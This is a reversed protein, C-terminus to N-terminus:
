DGLPLQTKALIAMHDDVREHHRTDIISRRGTRACTALTALCWRFIQFSSSSEHISSFRYQKQIYVFHYVSEQAGNLYLRLESYQM